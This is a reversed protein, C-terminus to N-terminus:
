LGLTSAGHDGAGSGNHFFIASFLEENVSSEGHLHIALNKRIDLILWPGLLSTCITNITLLIAQFTVSITPDQTFLVSAVTNLVSYIFLCLFYVASHRALLDVIGPLRTTVDNREKLHWALCYAVLIMMVGEFVLVLVTNAISIRGNLVGSIYDLCRPIGLLIGEQFTVGFLPVFSALWSLLNGLQTILYLGFSSFTIWKSNEYIAWVRSLMVGQIVMLTLNLLTTQLIFLVSCAADTLLLPFGIFQL